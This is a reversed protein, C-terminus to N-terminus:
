PELRLAITFVDIMSWPGAVKRFGDRKALDVNVREDTVGLALLHRLGLAVHHIGDLHNLLVTGVGGAEGEGCLRRGTCVDGEIGRAGLAIAGKGVLDPVGRAEE